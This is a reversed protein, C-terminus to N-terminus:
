MRGKMQAFVEDLDPGQNANTPETTSQTYLPMADETKKESPEADDTKKEPEADNTKEEPKEDGTKNAEPDNDKTGGCGDIVADLKSSLATLAMLVDDLTVTHPGETSVPASDSTPAPSEKNETASVDPKTEDSTKGEEKPPEQDNTKTEPAEEPKQDEVKKTPDEMSKEMVDSIADRNLSFYFDELTSIAVDVTAEDEDRLLPVDLIFRLLKEKEESDPLSAVMGSLSNVHGNWEEENWENRHKKVDELILVFSDTDGTGDNVGKMKNKIFALFGSRVRKMNKGGDLVRMESGGRAEPVVAIHNVSNIRECVIQFEEGNPATGGQWRYDAVYGPSLERERSFIVDASDKIDLKSTVVVEGDLMKLNAEGSFGIARPDEDSSLWNEHGVKVPRHALMHSFEKILNASRYVGFVELHKYERPIEM